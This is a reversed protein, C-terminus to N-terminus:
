GDNSSSVPTGEGCALHFPVQAAVPPKQQLLLIMPALDKTSPLEPGPILATVVCM